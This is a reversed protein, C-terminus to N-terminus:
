PDMEINNDCRNRPKGLLRRGKPKGVLLRLSNRKEEIRAAYGTWRIKKSKIM